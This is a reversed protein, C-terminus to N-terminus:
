DFKRDRRSLKPGTGPSSNVVVIEYQGDSVVLVDHSHLFVGIRGGELHVGAVVADLLPDVGKTMVLRHPYAQEAKRDGHTDGDHTKTGIDVRDVSACM